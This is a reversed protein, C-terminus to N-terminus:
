LEIIDDWNIFEFQNSPAQALQVSKNRYVGNPTTISFEPAEIRDMASVDNTLIAKRYEELVKKIEQEDNNGKKPGGREAQGATVFVGRSKRHPALKEEAQPVLRAVRGEAQPEAAASSAVPPRRPIRSQKGRKSRPRSGRSSGGSLCEPRRRDLKDTKM